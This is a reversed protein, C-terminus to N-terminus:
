WIDIYTYTQSSSWNFIVTHGGVGERPKSINEYINMCLIDYDININQKKLDYEFIQIYKNKDKINDLFKIYKKDLKNVKDIYSNLYINPQIHKIYEEMINQKTTSVVWSQYSGRPLFGLICM